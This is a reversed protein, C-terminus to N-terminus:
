IKLNPLLFGLLGAKLVVDLAEVDLALLIVCLVWLGKWRSLTLDKQIGM